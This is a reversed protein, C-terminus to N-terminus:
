LKHRLVSASKVISSESAKCKVIVFDSPMHMEAESASHEGALRKAIRDAEYHIVRKNWKKKIAEYEEGETLLECDGDLRYGLFNVDDMISLSFHPNEKLNAYTRTFKYDIFYLLNPKMIDILMKAVSNPYGQNSCTAVYIVKLAKKRDIFNNFAEDFNEAM